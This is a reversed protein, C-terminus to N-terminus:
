SADWVIFFRAWPRAVYRGPFRKTGGLDIEIEELFCDKTQAHLLTLAAFSEQDHRIEPLPYRM